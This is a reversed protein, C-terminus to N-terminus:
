LGRLPRIPDKLAEKYDLASQAGGLVGLILGLIGLIAGLTTGLIPGLSKVLCDFNRTSGAPRLLESGEWPDERLEESSDM